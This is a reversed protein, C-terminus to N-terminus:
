ADAFEAEDAADMVLDDRGRTAYVSGTEDATLLEKARDQMDRILNWCCGCLYKWVDDAHSNMAVEILHEIEDIELGADMFQDLSARFSSPLPVTKKEGMYTYTWNNWRSLFRDHIERAFAREISRQEAVAKMACAWREADSAVGEVVAADTPMSSKGANCDICAPVLNAAEDAGGLAVPIVHDITLKVEPAARGCYRCAHNDRRLIEYRLRKSIAM